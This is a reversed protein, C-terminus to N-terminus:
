YALVRSQALNVYKKIDNSCTYYIIRIKRESKVFLIVIIEITQPFTKRASCLKWREHARDM